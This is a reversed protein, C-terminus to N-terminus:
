RQGNGWRRYRPAEAPRAGFLRQIRRVLRVVRAGEFREIERALTEHDEALEEETRALEKERDELTAELRRCRIEEKTVTLERAQLGVANVDIAPLDSRESEAASALKRFAWFAGFPPDLPQGKSDVPHFERAALIEWDGDFDEPTWGSRHMQWQGGRLAWGDRGSEDEVQPMFGLPTFIVVQKRAIRECERIARAADDKELHEIFDLLFATDVSRDPFLELCDPVRGQILITRTGAFRERLIALYEDHADVGILVKPEVYTQPRIGCGVDLVVDAPEIRRRAEPILTDKDFWTVNM